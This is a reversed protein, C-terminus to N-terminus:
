CQLLAFVHNLDALGDQQSLNANINRIVQSSLLTVHIFYSQWCFLYKEYVLLPWVYQGIKCLAQVMWFFSKALFYTHLPQYITEYHGIENLTQPM